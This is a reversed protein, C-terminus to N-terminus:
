ESEGRATYDMLLWVAASVGMGLLALTLTEQATALWAPKTGVYEPKALRGVYEGGLYFGGLACSSGAVVGRFVDKDIM